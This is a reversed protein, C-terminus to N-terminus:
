AAMTENILIYEELWKKFLPNIDSFQLGARYQDSYSVRHSWVIKATSEVVRDVEPFKLKVLFNANPAFFGDMNMRIGTTSIDKTSTEGYIRPSGLYEFTVPLNIILRKSQRREPTQM